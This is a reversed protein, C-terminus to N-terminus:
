HIKFVTAESPVSSYNLIGGTSNFVVGTARNKYSSIINLKYQKTINNYDVLEFVTAESIISSDGFDGNSMNYVWNDKPVRNQYSSIYQMKIQQKDILISNDEKEERSGTGGGDDSSAPVCCKFKNTAYKTIWKSDITDLASIPHPDCNAAYIWEYSDKVILYKNGTPKNDDKCVNDTSCLELGKDECAQEADSWSSQKTIWEEEKEEESDSDIGASLLKNFDDKTKDALEKTKDAEEKTKDAEEKTKKVDADAKKQAEEAKKIEDEDGGKKAIEVKKAAEEAKQQAEEAKKSDEEAKQQAEEAKKQAEEAKKAEEEAKKDAKAKAKRNDELQQKLKKVEDSDSGGSFTETGTDDKSLDWWLGVGILIILIVAFMMGGILVTKNSM